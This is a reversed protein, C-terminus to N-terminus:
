FGRKIKTRILKIFFIKGKFYKKIIIDGAKLNFFIHFNFIYIVIYRYVM